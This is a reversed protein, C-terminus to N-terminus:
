INCVAGSLLTSGLQSSGPSRESLLLSTVVEQSHWHWVLMSTWATESHLQNLQFQIFSRVREVFHSCVDDSWHTERKWSHTNLHFQIKKLPFEPCGAFLYVPGWYVGLHACVHIFLVQQWHRPNGNFHVTIEKTTGSWHAANSPFHEM